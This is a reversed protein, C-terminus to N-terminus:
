QLLFVSNRFGHGLFSPEWEVNQNLIPLALTRAATLVKTKIKMGLQSLTLTPTTSCLKIAMVGRSVSNSSFLFHALPLEQVIGVLVQFWSCVLKFM